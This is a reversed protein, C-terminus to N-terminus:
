NKIKSDRKIDIHTFIQLPQIIFYEYNSDSIEIRTLWRINCYRLQGVDDAYRWWVDRWHQLGIDRSSASFWRDVEVFRRLYWIILTHSRNVKKQYIDIQCTLVVWNHQRPLNYGKNELRLRWFISKFKFRLLKRRVNLSIENKRLEYWCQIWFLTTRKWRDTNLRDKFISRWFFLFRKNWYDSPNVQIIM